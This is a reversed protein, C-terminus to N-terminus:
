PNGFQKTFACFEEGSKHLFGDFVFRIRGSATACTSHIFECVKQEVKDLPVVGEFPEEETGMTSKIKNSIEQM